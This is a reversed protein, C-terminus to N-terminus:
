WAAIPLVVVHVVEDEVDGRSLRSGTLRTAVGKPGHPEQGQKFPGRGEAVLCGEGSTDM